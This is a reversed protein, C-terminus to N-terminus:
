NASSGNPWKLTVMGVLEVSRKRRELILVSVESPSSGNPLKLTGMGEEVNEESTRSKMVGFTQLVEQKKVIDEEASVRKRKADEWMACAKEVTEVAMDYESKAGLECIHRKELNTQLAPITAM